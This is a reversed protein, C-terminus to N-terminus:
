AAASAILELVDAGYRDLKAPGFGSVAALDAHSRPKEAALARLTQDHLVVYAPV